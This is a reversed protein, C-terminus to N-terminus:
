RERGGREVDPVFRGHPSGASAVGTVGRRVARGDRANGAASRGLADDPPDAILLQDHEAGSLVSPPLLEDDTRRLVPLSDANTLAPLFIEVQLDLRHSRSSPANLPKQM